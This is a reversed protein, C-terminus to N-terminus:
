THYAENPSLLNDPITREIGNNSPKMINYSYEVASLKRHGEIRAKEGIMMERLGDGRRRGMQDAGNQGQWDESWEYFKNM